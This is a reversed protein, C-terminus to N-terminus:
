AASVNCFVMSVVLVIGLVTVMLPIVMYVACNRCRAVVAMVCSFFLLVLGMSSVSLVCGVYWSSCSLVPVSLWAPYRSKAVLIVCYM